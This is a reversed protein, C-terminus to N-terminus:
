EENEADPTPPENGAAMNKAVALRAALGQFMLAVARRPIMPRSKRIAEEAEVADAQIQDLEMWLTKKM